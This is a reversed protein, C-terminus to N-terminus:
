RPQDYLSWMAVMYQDRSQDHVSWTISWASIVHSIICQDRPVWASIVHSIMSQEYGGPAGLYVIRPVLDGLVSPTWIEMPVKMVFAFPWRVGSVVCDGLHSLSCQEGELAMWLVWPLPLILFTLTSWPPLLLGDGWAPIVPALRFIVTGRKGTRRTPRVRDQEM